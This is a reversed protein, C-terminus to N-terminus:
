VYTNENVAHIGRLFRVIEEKSGYVGLPKLSVSDLKKFGIKTISAYAGPSLANVFAQLSQQAIGIKDVISEILVHFGIAWSSVIVL